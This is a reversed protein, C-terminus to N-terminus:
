LHFFLVLDAQLLLRSALRGILHVGITLRIKLIRILHLPLADRHPSLFKWIYSQIVLIKLDELGYIGVIGIGIFM